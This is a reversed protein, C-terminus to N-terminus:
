NDKILDTLAADVANNFAAQLDKLREERGALAEERESVANERYGVANERDRAKSEANKAATEAQSFEEILAGYKKPDSIMAMMAYM